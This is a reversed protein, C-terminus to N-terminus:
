AKQSKKTKYERSVSQSVLSFLNVRFNITVPSRVSLLVVQLAPNFEGGSDGGTSAEGMVLGREDAPPPLLLLLAMILKDAKPLENV